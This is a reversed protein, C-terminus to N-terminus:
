RVKSAAPRVSSSARSRRSARVRLAFYAVGSFVVVAGWAGVFWAPATVLEAGPGGLPVHRLPGALYGRRKASKSTPRPETPLASRREPKM